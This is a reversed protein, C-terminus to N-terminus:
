RRHSGCFSEGKILKILDYITREGAFFQKAM